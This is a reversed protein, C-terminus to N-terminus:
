CQSGKRVIDRRRDGVGNGEGVDVNAEGRKVVGGCHDNIEIKSVIKGKTKFNSCTRCKMAGENGHKM